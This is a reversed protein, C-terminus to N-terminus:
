LRKNYKRANTLKQKWPNHSYAASANLSYRKLKAHVKNDIEMNYNSTFLNFLVGAIIMYVKLFRHGQSCQLTALQDEEEAASAGVKKFADRPNTHRACTRQWM